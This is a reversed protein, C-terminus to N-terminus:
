TGDIPDVVWTIGSTGTRAGREEGHFGDQPRLEGLRRLLLDQSRQDMVTVVDTASSKTEAVGLDRPRDDVVLVGAEVAVKLAIDALEAPDVGAPM